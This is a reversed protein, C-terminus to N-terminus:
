QNTLARYAPVQLSTVQEQLLHIHGQWYTHTNFWPFSKPFAPDHWRKALWGSYQLIRMSQLAEVLYLEKMDFDYFERYAALIVMLQRARQALDGSFLMWLDQVAPAMRSDDFDLFHIKEERCFLMNGLHCDTHTCILQCDGAMEYRDQIGQTLAKVLKLYASKLELPIYEQSILDVGEQVYSAMNLTPRHRYPQEAGVAHIRAIIRSIQRLRDDDGLEPAHGGQRLYLCFRMEKYYFLSASEAPKHELEDFALHPFHTSFDSFTLPALVPIEQRVLAQCFDHEELIQADSWRGPRYFKVVLFHSNTLHDSQDVASTEIGVQYVRNEYSNLALIRGDAPLGCSEVADLIFDPLLCEFPLNEM